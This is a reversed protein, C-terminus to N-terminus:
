KTQLLVRRYDYKYAYVTNIATIDNKDIYLSELRFWMDFKHVEPVDDSIKLISSVSTAGAQHIKEDYKLKNVEVFKDDSSNILYSKHFSNTDKCSIGKPIRIFLLAEEGKELIGNGNGIGGSLSDNIVADFEQHFVPVDKVTRGDLVIIDHDNVYSSKPTEVFVIKQTDAVVGNIKIEFMLNGNEVEEIYKSFSFKLKNGGEIATGAKLNNLVIKNNTFSLTPHTSTVTVEVNDADKNGINIINLDLGYEKGVEFYQYDRNYKDTIFIRPTNGFKGGNIGVVNGGGSLTFGLNNDGARKSQPKTFSHTLLNYSTVSYQDFPLDTKVSVKEKQAIVGDPLFTRSYIRIKGDSYKDFLTLAPEERTIDVEYGFLKFSTFGPSVYNWTKPTSLKKTFHKMHFDLQEKIDAAFHDRFHAVHFEYHSLDAVSWLQNMALDNYKLWDGDTMTLRVDIGKLSRYMELIPFVVQEGKVGFLPYNDAPCFSSISNVLDKSQGAIYNAMLGGMSLGTIARNNRNAITRYTSDIRSVLERFYVRYDLGRIDRNLNHARLYDYPACGGYKIGDREYKGPEYKPENGDWTVVIVDHAKVYDEWEMIFPPNKRAKGNHYPDHAISYAEWKYRGSFGHFYYVVPYRKNPNKEYSAPLYIRYFRESQFEKSYFSHDEYGWVQSLFGFLFLIFLINKNTVRKVRQM